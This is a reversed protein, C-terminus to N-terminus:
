GLVAVLVAGATVLFAGTLRHRMRDREGLIFIGFATAVLTGVASVAIVYGAPALELSTQIGFVHVAFFFGSGAMLLAWIVPRRERAVEVSSTAFLPVAAILLVASGLTVSVAWPIPGAAAIGFKHVLTTISWSVSAALACWSARSRAFARVPETWSTGTELGVCYVGITVLLIGFGALPSPVENLVVIAGLTVFVPTVGLIPQVISLDGARLALAMFLMGLAEPPLVMALARWYGPTPAPWPGSALALALLLFGSVFRFIVASVIVDAYQVSKKLTLSNFANGFAAVVTLAIWM